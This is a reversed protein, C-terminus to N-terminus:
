DEVLEKDRLNEKLFYSPSMGYVTKFQRSMHSASCFGFQHAAEAVTCGSSRMLLEAHRLRTRTIYDSPSTHLIRRFLKYLASSSVGLERNLDYLKIPTDIHASIYDLARILLELEHGVKQWEAQTSFSGEKNLRALHVSLTYLQAELLTMLGPVAERWDQLMATFAPRFDPLDGSPVVLPSQGGTVTQLYSDTMPSPSIDFHIYYYYLKEGPQCIATYVQYPTLLALCGPELPYQGDDTHLISSGRLILILELDHTFFQSFSSIDQQSFSGFGNITFSIRDLYSSLPDKNVKKVFRNINNYM